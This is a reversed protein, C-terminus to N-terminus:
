ALKVFGDQLGSFPRLTQADSGFGSAGIVQQAAQLSIGTLAGNRGYWYALDGGLAADDSGSLHFQLLANTVAWSTLGPSQALAQDFQSVIGRFDFTEVKRNYLPDNSNPDYAPTADLIVQLKQVDDKGAYWDKLVVRDDGGANLVLDNGNKSLSLDNYGIGGGVSLTNSAGADSYVTDTGGGSNFAVVNSGGGTAVTDNGSGGVFVDNGSGGTMQDSGAGGSFLNNGETDTLTDNGGGGELVTPGAEGNLTDPGLGGRVMGGETSMLWNKWPGWAIGDNARAWVQETSANAAGVYQTNTLDSNSVDIAQGAAQQVGNVTFYGGGNVDDWLQYSAIPDGDADSVSFLSSGSVAEGRLLGNDAASVVPAANTLHPSSQMNWSKWDSWTQGDNARVWVLDSGSASGGVFKTGALQAASVPISVNVGQEAGDVTFHGNGASSDWFEYQTIPDNDADSVSFLSSADVAQSLLVTQDSASVVPAANPVHLATTMNWPKWASWELGDNARVWVRETGGNAGGVYDTNALDAASVAIAQAAAQQVGNVRWYGGGNVDDWFEYKAIPDSDVDTVSFLSGAAVAQDTLISADAASVAPASNGLHPWSNMNWSKWDSWTQGDSARVWVLDTGTSASGIFQTNALDAASVPITVNVGAEIGNVSFHGNGTTSDWFEYQTPTDGDQDLVSFLSSAAVTAGFLLTGDSAAITPAHNEVSPASISQPAMGFDTSALVAQKQGTSLGDVNGATAYQYALAGGFAETTSVSLVNEDLAPAASWGEPAGADLFAQVVANLDYTRVDDGILQLTGQPWLDSSLQYGTVTVGDSPGFGIRVSGSFDASLTIDAASAGGLSVTIPVNYTDLTDEGDGANLAVISGAARAVIFESGEGGIFLNRGANVGEVLADDGAGGVLLNNGANGEISDNGAGGFIIDDGGNGYIQDDGALGDVVDDGDPLNLIDGQATAPATTIRAEIDAANWTTGDAFQVREIAGGNSSAGYIEVRSDPENVELYLTGYPDRTVLVNAPAIGEGFRVTDSGAIESIGDIGNGLEYVYTDDGEGGEVYDYGPGPFITDDGAGAFISDDGGFGYIREGLDTGQLTDAEDTGFIPSAAVRATIAAGDWTTGDTFVIQGIKANGSFQGQVTLVDSTASIRVVLDNGSRTLVVDDASMDAGFSVTNFNNTADDVEHITDAGYGRAFVYTDNGAGGNLSDNGAGGDLMDDGAGGALMDDGGGGRLVDNGALGKIVEGQDGGELLDDGPTGIIQSQVAQLVQDLTYSTGDAFEFADIGAGLKYDQLQDLSGSTPLSTGTFGFSADPVAVDFGADGWRVSLTADAVSLDLDALTLGPGFKVVDRSVVGARMLEALAATDNRTLLPAAFPLPEIYKVLDPNGGAALYGDPSDLYVTAEIPIRYQGGHLMREDWNLIGRNWYFSDLYAITDSGSDALTDIGSENAQYLYADSGGAGDITDNGDGGLITDQGESGSVVDNGSGADAFGGLVNAHGVLFEDASSRETVPTHAYVYRRQADSTSLPDVLSDLNVGARWDQAPFYNAANDLGSFLGEVSLAITDDGGAGEVLLPGHVLISNSAGGAMVDAVEVQGDIRTATNVTQVPNVVTVARGEGATGLIHHVRYGVLEFRSDNEIGSAAGSQDFGDKPPVGVRTRYVPILVDNPDILSGVRVVDGPFRAHPVPIFAGEPLSGTTSNGFNASAPARGFGTSQVIPRAVVQATETVTQPAFYFVTNGISPDDSFSTGSVLRNITTTTTSRQAAYSFGRDVKEYANDGLAAFGEAQRGAGFVQARQARYASKQEDLWDQPPPPVAVSGLDSLAFSAGQSDLVRWGDQWSQPQLYFDRLVLADGTAGIRVNLDDGARVLNLMGRTIGGDLRITNTSNPAALGDEIVTDQGGNFALVYTDNGAGGYLTDNGSGGDIKDDGANGYITDAGAGGFFQDAHATGILTDAADSGRYVFGDAAFQSLLESNTLTVTGGAGDNVTITGFSGLEGGQVSVGGSAPTQGPNAADRVHLNLYTDGGDAEYQTVELNAVTLASFATVDLHNTGQTDMVVDGEGAFISDDGADSALVVDLRRTWRWM